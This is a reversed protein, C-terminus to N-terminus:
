LGRCYKNRVTELAESVCGCQTFVEQIIVHLLIIRLNRVFEHFNHSFDVALCLLILIAYVVIVEMPAAGSSEARASEHLPKGALSRDKAIPPMM